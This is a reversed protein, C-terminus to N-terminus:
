STAPLLARPPFTNKDRLRPSARGVTGAALQIAHMAVRMCALCISTQGRRDARLGCDLSAYFANLMCVTRPCLCVYVCVCLCWPGIHMHVNRASQARVRACTRWGAACLELLRVIRVTACFQVCVCERERVWRFECVCCLCACCVCVCVVSCDAPCLSQTNESHISKFIRASYVSDHLARLEYLVGISAPSAPQRQRKQAESRWLLINNMQNRQSAM